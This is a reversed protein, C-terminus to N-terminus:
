NSRFLMDALRLNDSGFMSSFASRNIFLMDTQVLVNAHHHHDLLAYPFYGYDLLENLVSDFSPAGCNYQMVPMELYVLQASALAQKAGRLIKLEAGQADIKILSADPLREASVVDDLRQMATVIPATDEFRPTREKFISDGTEARSFFQVDANEDGLLVTFFQFTTAQLRDRHAENPEFLIFAPSGSLCKRLRTAWSGDFAGIDYVVDLKLGAHDLENLVACLSSNVPNRIVEYGFRRLVAAVLRQLKPMFRSRADLRKFNGSFPIQM